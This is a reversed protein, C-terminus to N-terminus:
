NCISLGSFPHPRVHFCNDLKNTRVVLATHTQEERVGEGRGDKRGGESVKENGGKGKRGRERREERRGGERGKWTEM